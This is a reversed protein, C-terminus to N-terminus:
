EKVSDLSKVVAEHILSRHKSLKNNERTPHVRNTLLIVILNQKPDTWVSTGTYGTHGYAEESFSKGPSSNFKFNTDWGIARSSSKDFQTVFKKVTSNRIYEKGQYKGGQLLMQLIKALDSTTSFLGAHGAVGGLLHANEDHVTGILLRNRWYNDVETPAIRHYVKESPNYYTDNMGLPKFIEDACFKDLPKRTVKEIVKGLTIMGLDSYVTKTGTPYELEANYIDKLVEESTKYMKYYQKYAILGSNHLLLNKLTIKEKGNARFGPIYKKVPDDLKFLGRDVCIMAATTTAIVKSVSAMDFITNTLMPQADLAYTYKGYARDFVIQGNKIVMLAAGPFVTDTICSLMIKDILSSNKLEQFRTVDALSTRELRQGSGYVFKSNPVSVPLSGSVQYEGFIIEALAVESVGTEGYNIICNRVSSYNELEYPTGQVALLTRKNASLLKKVANQRKKLYSDKKNLFGSKSYVSLIVGNSNKAQKIIENLASKNNVDSLRVTKISSDRYRLESGFIGGDGNKDSNLIIHIIEKGGSTILPVMRDKNSLLTISKRALQLGTINNEFSNKRLEEKVFKNNFLGLNYKAAIIKRASENIREETILGSRFASLLGAYASDDDEAMLLIDNGALFAMVAADGSSYKKSIAKMNLADTVILGSFKLKERILERTLIPSLSAPLGTSDINPLALHGTMISSVGAVIAQRFPVLEKKELSAYNEKLVPLELHSDVSTNGHGPFHKATALCGGAQIGRIFATGLKSVLAPKEGFSRINIVPNLSNTNVDLVPAYIHHIGVSRATRALERGAEFTKLSDGAAGIGMNYPLSYFDGEDSAIAREYDASFLLPVQSINQLRNLLKVQGRINGKYCIAGGIKVDRILHALRQYRPDDESYNRGAFYTFIVQGLREEISLSKLTLEVIDPSVFSSTDNMDPYIIDGDYSLDANLRHGTFFGSAILLAFFILLNRLIM